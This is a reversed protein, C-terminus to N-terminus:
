SKHAARRRLGFLGLAAIGLSMIGWTAPEPASNVLRVTVTDLKGLTIATDPIEVNYGTTGLAVMEYGNVVTGSDFVLTDNPTFGTTSNGTWGNEVLNGVLTASVPTTSGDEFFALTLDVNPITSTNGGPSTSGAVTTVVSSLTGANFDTNITVNPNGTTPSFALSSLDAPYTFGSPLTLESASSSSDFTFTNAAFLPAVVFPLGCLVVARIVKRM